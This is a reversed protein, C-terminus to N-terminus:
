ITIEYLPYDWKFGHRQISSKSRSEADGELKKIKEGSINVSLWHALQYLDLFIEIAYKTLIEM